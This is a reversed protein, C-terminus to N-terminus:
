RKHIKEHSGWINSIPFDSVLDGVGLTLVTLTVSKKKKKRSLDPNEDELFILGEM